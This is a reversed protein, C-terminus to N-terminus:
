RGRAGGTGGCGSGAPYGGGANGGRAAHGRGGRGKGRHFRCLAPHASSGKPEPKQLCCRVLSLPPTGASTLALGRTLCPSCTGLQMLILGMCIHRPTCPCTIETEPMYTPMMSPCHAMATMSSANPAKVKGCRTLCWRCVLVGARWRWCRVAARPATRSCVSLRTSTNAQSAVCTSATRHCWKLM